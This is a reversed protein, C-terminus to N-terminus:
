PEAAAGVGTAVRRVFDRLLLNVRVPDRAQPLHGAGEILVLDGGTLAAVLPGREPNQCRDETGTIVLVPCRVKRCVDAATTPDNGLYPPSDHELLMTRAGAGM